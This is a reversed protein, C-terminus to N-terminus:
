LALCFFCGCGCDSKKHSFGLGVDSSRPIRGASRMKAQRCDGVAVFILAKPQAKAFGWTHIHCSFGDSHAIFLLHRLEEDLHKARQVPDSRSITHPAARHETATERRSSLRHPIQGRTQVRPKISTGAVRAQYRFSCRGFIPLLRRSWLRRLILLIQHIAPEVERAMSGQLWTEYHITQMITRRASSEM